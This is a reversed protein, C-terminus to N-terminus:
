ESTPEYFQALGSWSFRSFSGQRSAGGAIVFREGIVAGHAGHVALPPQNLPQWTAADGLSTDLQWHADVVGGADGPDEGGSILIVGGLAGESAGSTAEPLTPGPRWTNANPTTSTSAIWSRAARVPRRHGLDRRRSGRGGPPRAAGAHRGWHVLDGAAVDYVLVRGTEGIGGVVYLTGDFAVMRHAFRPEPM